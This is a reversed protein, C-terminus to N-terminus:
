LLMGVFWSGSERSEGIISEKPGVWGVHKGTGGGATARESGGDSPRSPAPCDVRHPWGRNERAAAAARAGPFGTPHGFLTQVCEHHGDLDM